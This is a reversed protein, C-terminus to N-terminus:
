EDGRWGQARLLEAIRPPQWGAPKLRKGDERIPGTTKQMNTRHIEDWIPGADVGMRCLRGLIVYALDIHADVEGVLDDHHRAFELEAYEERILEISLADDDSSLPGPTERMETGIAANFDFVDDQWTQLSRRIAARQACGSCTAHENDADRQDCDTCTM